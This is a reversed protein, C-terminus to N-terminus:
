HNYLCVFMNLRWHSSVCLYLADVLPVSLRISCRSVPCLLTCLRCQSSVFSPVCIYPAETAKPVFILAEMATCVYFLAEMVPCVLYLVEIVPCVFYLAEM